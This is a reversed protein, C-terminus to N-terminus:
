RRPRKKTARVDKNTERLRALVIQRAGELNEHAGEALMRGVLQDLHGGGGREEVNDLRVLRLHQEALSHLLEDDTAQEIGHLRKSVILRYTAITTTQNSVFMSVHKGRLHESVSTEIQNVKADRLIHDGLVSAQGVNEEVNDGVVLFIEDLTQTHIQM